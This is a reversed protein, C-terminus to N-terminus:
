DPTAAGASRYAIQGCKHAYVSRYGVESDNVLLLTGKNPIERVQVLTGNFVEGTEYVVHVVDGVVM